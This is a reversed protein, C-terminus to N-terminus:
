TRNTAGTRETSHTVNQFFLRPAPSHAQSSPSPVAPPALYLKARAHSAGAQTCQGITHDHTTSTTDHPNKKETTTTLSRGCDDDDLPAAEAKQLRGRATVDMWRFGVGRRGAWGWV